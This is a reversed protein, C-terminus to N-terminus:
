RTFEYHTTTPISFGEAEVTETATMKLSNSTLEEITFHVPMEGQTVTLVSDALTYSATLDEVSGDPYVQHTAITNDSNFTMTLSSMNDALTQTQTMGMFTMTITSTNLNANWTGLLKDGMSEEKKCGSFILGVVVFAMLLVSIRKKMKKSKIKNIILIKYWFDYKKVSQL